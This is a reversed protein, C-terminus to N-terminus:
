EPARQRSVLGSPAGGSLLRGRQPSARQVKRPVGHIRFRYVKVVGCRWCICSVAATKHVFQRDSMRPPVVMKAPAAIFAKFIRRGVSQENARLWRLLSVRSRDLSEIRHFRRICHLSLEHELERDGELVAAEDELAVAVVPQDIRRVACPMTALDAELSELFFRRAVLPHLAPRDAALSPHSVSRVALT